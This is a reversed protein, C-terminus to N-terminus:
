PVGVKAALRRSSWHTLPAPPKTQVTLRVIKAEVAASLGHGRGPRLAGALALIGGEVYRRKWIAIFRDTCAEQAAIAAYSAGAGLSVIVRIRKAIAQSLTAQRLLRGLDARDEDSLALPLVATFM